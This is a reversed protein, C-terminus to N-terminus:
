AAAVGTVWDKWTVGAAWVIAKAGSGFWGKPEAGNLMAAVAVEPRGTLKAAVVGAHVTDPVVTVIAAAPAQVM